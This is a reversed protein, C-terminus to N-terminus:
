AASLGLAVLAWKARVNFRYFHQMTGRVPRTRVLAIADCKALKRVHYSVNNLDMKMAASLEKPSIADSGHMLRLIDRRMPHGLAVLLPGQDEGPDGLQMQNLESM